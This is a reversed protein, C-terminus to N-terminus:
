VQKIRQPRWEISPVEIVRVGAKHETTEVRIQPMGAELM